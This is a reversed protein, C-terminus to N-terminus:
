CCSVFFSTYGAGTNCSCCDTSSTGVQQAGQCGQYSTSPCQFCTYTIGTNPCSGCDTSSGGWGGAQQQQPPCFPPVTPWPTPQAAPACQITPICQQTPIPAAQQAGQGCPPCTPWTTVPPKGAQAGCNGTQWPGPAPAPAAPPRCLPTCNWSGATGGTGAQQPACGWVTPWCPINTITMTEGGEQQKLQLEPHRAVFAQQVRERVERAADRVRSRGDGANPQKTEARKRIAM